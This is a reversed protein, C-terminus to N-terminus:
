NLYTSEVSQDLHYRNGQGNPQIRCEKMNFKGQIGKTSKDSERAVTPSHCKAHGAPAQLVQCRDM